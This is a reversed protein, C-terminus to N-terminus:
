DIYMSGREFESLRMDDMGTVRQQPMNATILEHYAFYNLDKGTKFRRELEAELDINREAFIPRFLDINDSIKEFM